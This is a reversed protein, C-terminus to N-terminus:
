KQCEFVGLDRNKKIKTYQKINGHMAIYINDEKKMSLAGLALMFNSTAEISDISFPVMAGTLIVTKNNLHKSLYKATKDMTDTGHIILIKKYKSKEIVNQLEKRDNDNIELSDKYLLGKLNYNIIKASELINEIAKNNRPVELKGDIENYVKNFTGGTNLILINKNNSV